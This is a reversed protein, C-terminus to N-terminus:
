VYIKKIVLFFRIQKLLNKRIKKGRIKQIQLSLGAGIGPLTMTNIHTHTDTQTDGGMNM